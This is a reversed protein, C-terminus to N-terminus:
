NRAGDDDVSTEEDVLENLLGCVETIVVRDLGSNYWLRMQHLLNTVLSALQQEEASTLEDENEKESLREFDPNAAMWQELKEDAAEPRPGWHSQYKWEEDLVILLPLDLDSEEGLDVEDMLRNLLSLDDDSRVFRLDLRPGALAIAYLVPAIAVTDPSDEEVIAVLHYFDPYNALFLQDEVSLHVEEVRRMLLDTLTASEQALEPYTLGNTFAFIPSRVPLPIATPRSSIPNM